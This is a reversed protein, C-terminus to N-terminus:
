RYKDERRRTSRILLGFGCHGGRGITLPGQALSTCRVTLHRRLYREQHSKRRYQEANRVGERPWGIEATMEVGSSRECEEAAAQLSKALRRQVRPANPRMSGTRAGGRRASAGRLLAPTATTWETAAGTYEITTSDPEIRELRGFTDGSKDTLITGELRNAIEDVIEVWWSGGGAPGAVMVRRIRGDNYHGALSPLGWYSAWEDDGCAKGDPRHGYICRNIDTERDFLGAKKATEGAAYRLTGCLGVIGEPAIARELKLVRWARTTPATEAARSGTRAYAQSRWHIIPRPGIGRTVTKEGPKTRETLGDTQAGHRAELRKLAGAYPVRMKASGSGTTPRWVTCNEIRETRPGGTLRAWAHDKGVGLRDLGNVLAEVAPLLASPPETSWTYAAHCKTEEAAPTWSRRHEYLEERADPSNEDDVTARRGYTKRLTGPGLRALEVTPPPQREIWELARRRAEDLNGGSGALLAQFLRAPGPGLPAGPEFGGYSEHMYTVEITM